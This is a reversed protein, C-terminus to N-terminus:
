PIAFFVAAEGRPLCRCPEIASSLKGAADSILKGTSTIKYTTSHPVPM